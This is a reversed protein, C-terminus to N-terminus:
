HYNKTKFLKIQGGIKFIQQKVSVTKVGKKIKVFESM